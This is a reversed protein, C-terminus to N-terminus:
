PRGAEQNAEALSFVSGCGRRGTWTIRRGVARLMALASVNRGGVVSAQDALHLITNTLTDAGIRCGALIKQLPQVYRMLDARARPSRGGHDITFLATVQNRDPVSASLPATSGSGKASSTGAGSASGAGSITPAPKGLGSAGASASALTTLTSVAVSPQNNDQATYTSSPQFNAVLLQEASDGDDLTTSLNVGPGTLQFQVFGNCGTMPPGGSVGGFVVPTNVEVQYTGPALSTVPHGADDTIAFTCNMAYTVYLTPV